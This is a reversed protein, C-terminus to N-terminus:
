GLWIRVGHTGADQDNAEASQAIENQKGDQKPSDSAPKGLSDETDHRLSGVRAEEPRM